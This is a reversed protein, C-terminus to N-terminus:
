SLAPDLSVLRPDLSSQRSSVVALKNETKNFNIIMDVTLRGDISACRLFFVRSHHHLDSRQDFVYFSLFASLSSFNLFRSFQGACACACALVCVYKVSLSDFNAENPLDAFFISGVVAVVSGISSASSSWFPSALPEVAM